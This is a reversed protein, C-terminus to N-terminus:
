RDRRAADVTQLPDAQRIYVLSFCVRQGRVRDPDRLPHPQLIYFALPLLTVPTLDQFLEAGCSVNSKPADGAPNTKLRARCLDARGGGSM